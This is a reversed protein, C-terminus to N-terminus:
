PMRDADNTHGMIASPSSAGVPTGAVRDGLLAPDIPACPDYKHRRVYVYWVREVPKGTQGDVQSDPPSCLPVTDGVQGPGGLRRAFFFITCVIEGWAVPFSCCM